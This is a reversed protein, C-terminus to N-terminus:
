VSLEAINLNGMILQEHENGDNKNVDSLSAANAMLQEIRPKRVIPARLLLLTQTKSRALRLAELKQKWLDICRSGRVIYFFDNARSWNEQMVAYKSKWATFLRLKTKLHRFRIERNELDRQRHAKRWFQLHKSVIRLSRRNRENACSHRWQSFVSQQETIRKCKSFIIGATQAQWRRFMEQRKRSEWQKLVKLCCTEGVQTVQFASEWYHFYLSELQVARNAYYHFLQSDLADSKERREQLVRKLASFVKAKIRQPESAILNRETCLLRWIQLKKKMRELLVVNGCDELVDLRKRQAKWTYLAVLKRSYDSETTESSSNELAKALTGNSAKLRTLRRLLRQGYLFRLGRRSQSASKWLCFYRKLQFREEQKAEFLSRWENLAGKCLNFQYKTDATVQNKAQRRWDVFIKRLDETVRFNETWIVRATHQKTLLNWTSLISTLKRNRTAIQVQYSHQELLVVSRSKTLWKKFFETKIQREKSALFIRDKEFVVRDPIAASFWAYFFNKLLRIENYLRSTQGRGQNLILNGHLKKFIKQRLKSAYLADARKSQMEHRWVQFLGKATFAHSRSVEERTLFMARRKKRAIYDNLKTILQHEKTRGFKKSFWRNMLRLKVKKGYYIGAITSVRTSKRWKSTISAKLRKRTREKVLRLNLNCRWIHLFKKIVNRDHEPDELRLNLLEQELKANKQSRQRKVAAMKRNEILLLFSQPEQTLLKRSLALDKRLTARLVQLMQLKKANILDDVLKKLGGDVKLIKGAVELRVKCLVQSIVEVLWDFRLLKSGLGFKASILTLASFLLVRRKRECNFNSNPYKATARKELNTALAVVKELLKISTQLPHLTSM